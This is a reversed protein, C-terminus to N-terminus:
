SKPVSETKKMRGKEDLLVKRSLSIKGTEKDIDIIKVTVEDGRKLIDEVKKIRERSIQSIHLLGERGPLIEVFAGFETTKVVRGSYIKGIEPVETIKAIM